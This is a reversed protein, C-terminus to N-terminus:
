VVKPRQCAPCAWIPRARPVWRVIETGCRRCPLGDRHYVYLREDRGLESRDRAGVEAPDVTVIRGSREGRRLEEGMRRWVRAAEDAGLARAPADPHIGELFLVEARYVNGIGAVVAQELLAEGIPISRRQLAESFAGAGGDGRSLPDPGLRARIREEEAADVLSCDTPGALYVTVSGNSMALRTGATPEPAPGRHTRFRGFLGLHVHLSRGGEWRYFLHKGVAEVSELLRGDLV